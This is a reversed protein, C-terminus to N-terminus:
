NLIPTGNIKILRWSIGKHKTNAFDIIQQKEKVYDNLVINEEKIKKFKDEDNKIYPNIIKIKIDISFKVAEKFNKFEKYFNSDKINISVTWVKRDERFGINRYGTLNNEYLLTNNNLDRTGNDNSKINGSIRGKKFNISLGELYNGTFINKAIVIVDGNKSRKGTDGVIQYNGFVEGDISKYQRGM